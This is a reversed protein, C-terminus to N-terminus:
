RMSYLDIIHYNQKIELIRKDSKMRDIVIVKTVSIIQKYRYFESKIGDFRSIVNRSDLRAM